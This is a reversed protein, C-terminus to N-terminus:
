LEIDIEKNLKNNNISELMTDADESSLTGAFKLLAQQSSLEKKAYFQIAKEVISTRSTHLKKELISLVNITQSNLRFNVVQKM